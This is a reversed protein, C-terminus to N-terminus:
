GRLFNELGKCRAEIFPKDFRRFLTKTPLPPLKRGSQELQHRLWVFESYRRRVTSLPLRFAKSDSQVTVEYDTYLLKNHKRYTLPNKVTVVTGEEM